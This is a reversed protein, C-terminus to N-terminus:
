IVSKSKPRICSDFLKTGMEEIEQITQSIVPQSIHLKNTVQTMNLTIAVEYFIRLRRENM